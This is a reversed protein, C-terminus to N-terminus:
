QMDATYSSGYGYATDAGPSWDNLVTGLVPVRDILFRQAVSQATDRQTVGSRIVLIVGDSLKGLLRSDPFYLAPATDVLILDFEQKLAALLAALRPSFLIEAPSEGAQLSGAPLLYMGPVSTQRIHQSEVGDGTLKDATLLETLGPYLPTDFLKHLRARRVDGDVILTRRGTAAAAAALNTAFTTKGEGPGPSTVIVLQPPTEGGLLSTLTYRFSDASLSSRQSWAVLEKPEEVPAELASKASGFSFRRAPRPIAAPGLTPIAGLEPVRLAHFMHGPVTFVKALKKAKLQELLFVVGVATALGLVSGMPIDRSPKPRIPVGNVSAQEIVRINNTPLAAVVNAQNTQQLLTNYTQRAMEVDRKMLGYQASKGAQGALIQSQSHYSASTMKERRLAAEYENQIRQVLNAKEKQLTQDIETIQADIRQVKYHSPTLTATLQARERRLETLKGRLEKMRGDDLLEPLSEISSSKALEWRSQKAIREVQMASLDGQLQRVKSDALAQQDLIAALGEKQVFEQLKAESQEIRSKAEELQGELWQTTRLANASRSQSNLSVFESALANAFATAVEPSSSECSIQLLRSAGVGNARTSMAAERVAQKMIEVPEQSIVGLRLRVKSYIDQPTSTIPTMELNVRETVRTLMTSGTLIRIQTQVNAATNSYSGTGAQQDFQNMGMFSENIGMLEVVSSASYTPATLVVRLFGGVTGLFFALLLWWKARWLAQPLQIGPGEPTPSTDLQPSPAWDRRVPGVARYTNRDPTSGSM